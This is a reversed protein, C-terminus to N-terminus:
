EKLAMIKIDSKNIGLIVRQNTVANKVYQLATDLDTPDKDM